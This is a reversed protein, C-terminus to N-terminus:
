PLPFAKAGIAIMLAAIAAASIGGVIQIFLQRGLGKTNM